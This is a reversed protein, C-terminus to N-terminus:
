AYSAWSNPSLFPVLIISVEGISKLIPNIFNKSGMDLNATLLHILRLSSTLMLLSCFGCGEFKLTDCVCCWVDIYGNMHLQRHYTSIKIEIWSLSFLVSKVNIDIFHYVVGSIVKILGLFWHKCLLIVIKESDLFIFNFFLDGYGVVHMRSHSLSLSFLLNAQSLSFLLNAKAMAPVCFFLPAM